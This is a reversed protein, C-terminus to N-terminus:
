KTSNLKKEEKEVKGKVPEERSPEPRAEGAPKEEVPAAEEAPPPVVVEEKAPPEIKALIQNENVKLEVKKRDVQIDKVLIADDVKQLGSVDVQFHEPLDTPLAEVEIESIIQVLIGIKQSEAPAEGVLEVPITAAVKETLIVQHFDAHLFTDGVPHKQVNQILIPRNEKEGEVELDVIGTEGIDQYVKTFDKLDVQVALSKTKKGYINAPLIGSNRIKKVKRGFIERKQATLKSRAM